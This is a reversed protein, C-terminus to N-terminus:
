AATALGGMPILLHELDSGLRARGIKLIPLAHDVRTQLFRRADQRDLVDQQWRAALPKQDPAPGKEGV